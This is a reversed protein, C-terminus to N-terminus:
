NELNAQFNNEFNPDYIIINEPLSLNEIRDLYEELVIKM